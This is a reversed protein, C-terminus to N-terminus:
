ECIFPIGQKKRVVNFTGEEKRGDRFEVTFTGSAKKDIKLHRFIVIAKGEECHNPSSCWIAGTTIPSNVQNKDPVQFFRISATRIDPMTLNVDLEVGNRCSFQM